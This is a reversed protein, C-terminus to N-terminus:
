GGLNKLIFCIVTGMGAMFLWHHNRNLHYTRFYNVTRNNSAADVLMDIVDQQAWEEFKEKANKSPNKKEDDACHDKLKKFYERYLLADDLLKFKPPHHVRFLHYCAIALPIFTLCAIICFSWFYSPTAKGYAFTVFQSVFGTAVAVTICLSIGFLTLVQGRFTLEALYLKEFFDFEKVDGRENIADLM